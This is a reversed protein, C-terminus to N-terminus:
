YINTLDLNPSTDSLLLSSATPPLVTTYHCSLSSSSFHNSELQYNPMNSPTTSWLPRPTSCHLSGCWLLARSSFEALWVKGYHEFIDKNQIQEQLVSPCAAPVTQDIWQYCSPQLLQRWNWHLTTSLFDPFRTFTLKADFVKKDFPFTQQHKNKAVSTETFCKRDLFNSMKHWFQWFLWLWTESEKSHINRIWPHGKEATFIVFSESM